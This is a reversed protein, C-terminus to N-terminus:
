PTVGASTKEEKMWWGEKDLIFHGIFIVKACCIRCVTARHSIGTTSMIVIGAVVLYM